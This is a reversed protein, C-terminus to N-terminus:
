VPAALINTAPLNSEIYVALCSMRAFAAFLPAGSL